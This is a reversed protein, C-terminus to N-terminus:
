IRIVEEGRRDSPTPRATVPVGGCAACDSRHHWQVQETACGAAFDIILPRGAYAPPEFGTLYRLAEFAALAGLLGAVPGIGRNVPPRQRLLREASLEDALQAALPSVAAARDGDYRACGRCASRGPDVSWVIGQTVWMGGRVYPTGAAVCADNVWDDIEAPSDVGSIVLDPAYRDLLASVGEPGDLEGDVAKVDISPEFARVWAAAVEVKRRGLDRQQYLYQRAFNRLEVADRDLLTLRGVGLGCLHPITNSNLGGTGLVLAHGGTLSGQIEERSRALTAFCEFFALNSHYREALSGTLRGLGGGDEVLRHEDLLGVAEVVDQEDISLQEALERYTRGGSRLLVLLREVTGDSDEILLQDRRDYVVRLDDGVREWVVGKLQPRV